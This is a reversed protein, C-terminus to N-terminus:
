SFQRQAMINCVPNLQHFLPLLHEYHNLMPTAKKIGSLLELHYVWYQSVIAFSIFYITSQLILGFLTRILKVM